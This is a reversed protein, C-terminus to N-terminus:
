DIKILIMIYKLYMAIELIELNLKILIGIIFVLLYGLILVFLIIVNVEEELNERIHGRLPKGNIDIISVISGGMVKVAQAYIEGEEQAVRLATDRKVINKRAFGKAKNGGTNNKVM